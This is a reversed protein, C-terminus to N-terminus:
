TACPESARAARIDRLRAFLPNLQEALLRGESRAEIEVCQEPPIRGLRLWNTVASPTVDSLEAFRSPGGEKQVLERLDEHEPLTM